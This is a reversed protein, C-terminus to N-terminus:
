LPAGHVSIIKLLNNMIVVFYTGQNWFIKNSTPILLEVIEDNKKNQIQFKKNNRARTVLIIKLYITKNLTEHFGTSKSKDTDQNFSFSTLAGTVAHWVM